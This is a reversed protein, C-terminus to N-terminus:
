ASLNQIKAGGGKGRIEAVASALLNLYLIYRKSEALLM